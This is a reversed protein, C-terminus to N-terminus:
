KSREEEEKRKVIHYITYLSDPSADVLKRRYFGKVELEEVMENRKTEFLGRNELFRKTGM